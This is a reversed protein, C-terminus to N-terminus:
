DKSAVHIGIFAKSLGLLAVEEKVDEDSPDQLTEAVEDALVQAFLGRATILTSQVAQEDLTLKFEAAVQVVLMASTSQPNATACHLVSYFPMEPTAHEQRELSRWARELLGERWFTLWIKSDPTLEDLSTAQADAEPMASIRKMAASRIGKILFDRLKGQRHKGFGASVLHSLLKRLAEDAEGPSGLSQILIRRMPALYRLVFGAANDAATWPHTTRVLNVLTRGSDELPANSM